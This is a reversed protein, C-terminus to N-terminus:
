DSGSSGHPRGTGSERSSVSSVAFTSDVSAGRRCARGDAACLTGSVLWHPYQAHPERARCVYAHPRRPRLCRCRIDPHNAFSVRSPHLRVARSASDMQESPARRAAIGRLDSSLPMATAAIAWCRDVTHQRHRLAALCCARYIAEPGLHIAAIVTPNPSAGPVSTTVSTKKRITSAGPRALCDLSMGEGVLQSIARNWLSEMNVVLALIRETDARLMKACKRRSFM